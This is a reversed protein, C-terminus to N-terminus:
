RSPLVRRARATPNLREPALGYRRESDHAGAEPANARGV